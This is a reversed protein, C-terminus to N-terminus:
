RAMCVDRRRLTVKVCVCVCVSVTVVTEYLKVKIIVTMIVYYDDVDNCERRLNQQPGIM